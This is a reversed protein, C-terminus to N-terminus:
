YVVSKQPVLASFKKSLTAVGPDLNNIASLTALQKRAAERQGDRWYALGLYYHVEEFGTTLAAARELARIAPRYQGDQMAAMGLGLWHYPDDDERKALLKAYSQAEAHRGQAVLLQHMSRLPGYSPGDLAIAHALLKEAGSLLGRRVYLQALNAFAPAYDPEAAIAARYYAYAREFDKEVLYEAARNNYFRALIAQETLWHGSRRSGVQPEFDIIFNGMGFSQGNLMIESNSRVTVNVHGSIFDYGSRRDVVVPVQVEQMHANVGLFRASAYALITLSLCDGRQNRWTESAGTTHGSTYSLRIGKPGYLRAVLLELRRDTSRGAGVDTLLIHALAPDLAFLTDRTETVLTSQYNFAQDQWLTDPPAGVMRPAACGGLGLVVILVSWLYRSCM